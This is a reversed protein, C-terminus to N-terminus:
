DGDVSHRVEGDVDRLADLHRSQAQMYASVQRSEVGVARLVSCAVGRLDEAAGLVQGRTDLFCWVGDRLDCFVAARASANRSSIATLMWAGSVGRRLDTDAEGEGLERVMRALARLRGERILNKTDGDGPPSGARGTERIVEGSTHSLQEASM